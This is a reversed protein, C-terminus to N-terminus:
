QPAGLGLSRQALKISEQPHSTLISLDVDVSGFLRIRLNANGPCRIWHELNHTDHDCKDCKPDVDNKIKARYENFLLSKGSRIRALLVQQQRKTITAEKTASYASYVEATRKHAIAPDRIRQKVAAKASKFSIPRAEEQLSTAQKAGADAAENGPINSHGPIWQITVECPCQRIEGLLSGVEENRSALASCLSQSDTAIVIKDGEVGNGIIWNIADHMAQLEEEYSSTLAAGKRLISFEEEPNEATGRTIIAASGGDRMGADASGDTYITRTANFQDLREIACRRRTAEDDHRSALGPLDTHVEFKVPLWPPNSFFAMNQRNNFCVPFNATADSVVSYWSRRSNKPKFSREWTERRPHDVPLRLAKEAAIVAERRMTTRLSVMNAERYLAEIPTDRYQGTVLRLAKNLVRELRGIQTESCWSQWGSAAYMLKSMVFTNCLMRLDNKGWGWDGHSLVNMMKMKKRAEAAVHTVQPGFTLQRDLIVGLLRPTQRFCFETGDDFLRQLDGDYMKITPSWRAEHTWTTFFSCESKSANLDLKWRRSWDAVINVSIQALEQAEEKTGATALANVDDAFMANLTDDPLERALNDIYFLFLVPSLVSGQPLGQRMVRVKSVEGQFRVRALRDSLFSALWRIYVMPVGKEEMSLLLKQKWVRDYAKSYDLQVLVSRKMSKAQFGDEITQVVKLIQDECSRGKRFGAQLPSFMGRTEAIQYLRASVMRELTKVVCSTLSVPRFSALSGPPKGAKLLPIIAAYRWVQPTHGEQFSQNFIDLLESKAVPGLAKLFSPPIDDCGQAGKTRTKRIATELEHMEFKLTSRDNVNQGGRLMVKAKRNEDREEKTFSLRSVDAYQEIFADAKKVNSSITKGNVVLVENPSNTNPTGNLTKIFNWMKGEDETALAEGVVEKWSEAKANRIAENAEACAELWEKKNNKLDRRLRNRKKILGRVTPTMWLNQKKKRPKTSGVHIEAAEYLLRNFRKVRTILNPAAQLDAMSGEVAETFKPWEVGNRKWRARVGVVPQHCIKSQVTIIVPLHDSSGIPEAINWISKGKWILGCLTIDPSSGNGTEPNTRTAEGNNLIELNNATIWEVLAEGRDDTPQVEDWLASHANFDGGIISSGLSPILETMVNENIDHGRSNHPACYVNTITIWKRRSMRVRFTQVETGEKIGAHVKEFIISDRILSILGGGAKTTTRDSRYTGYGQFYPTPSGPRLKSEQILCIDIELEKLVARLEDVKPNIGNANWQMIRINEKDASKLGKAADDDVEDGATFPRADVPKRSCWECVWQYGNRKVVVLSDRSLGTCSQHRKEDCKSCTVPTQTRTIPVKCGTRACKISSERTATQDTTQSVAIQNADEGTCVRCVWSNDNAKIPVLQYRNLGTCTQHRKSHCQTCAIPIQVRSFKKGCGACKEEETIIETPKPEATTAGDREKIQASGGVADEEGVEENSRHTECRWLGNVSDAKSHNVHCVVDCPQDCCQVPTAGRRIKQHCVECDRGSMYGPPGPNREIDGAM